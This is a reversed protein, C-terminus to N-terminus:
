PTLESRLRKSLKEIQKLKEILDKPLMGKQVDDVGSHISQSLVILEDADSKLKALDVSSKQQVPPPVNKQFQDEARDAQRQGTPGNRQAWTLSTFILLVFLLTSTKM